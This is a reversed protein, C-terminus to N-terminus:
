RWLTGRNKNTAKKFFRSGHHFYFGMGPKIQKANNTAGRCDGAERFRDMGGGSDDSGKHCALSVERSFRKNVSGNLTM